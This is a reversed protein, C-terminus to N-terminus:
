IPVITLISSVIMYSIIVLTAVQLFLLSNYQSEQASQEPYQLRSTALSSIDFINRISLCSPDPWTLINSTRFQDFTLFPISDITVSESCFIVFLQIFYRSDLYLFGMGHNEM